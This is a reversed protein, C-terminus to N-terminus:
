KKAAAADEKVKEIISEAVAKKSTYLCPIGVLRDNCEPVFFVRVVKTM